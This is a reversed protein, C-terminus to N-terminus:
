YKQKKYQVLEQFKNLRSKERRSATTPIHEFITCTNHSERQSSNIALGQGERKLAMHEGSHSSAKEVMQKKCIEKNSNTVEWM